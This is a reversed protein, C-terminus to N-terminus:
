SGRAACPTCWARPAGLKRRVGAIVADVVNSVPDAMEDWCHELLATRTVVSDQHVLLQQLVAYEKPEVLAAGRGAAGRAAGPGDGRGRLEPLRPLREAARRTLSRVRLVLERMAFPKALYDDAEGELGHLRDHLTDLATLCLVPASWGARRRYELRTLSDGSPLMRDLVVCDYATVHLMVDAEPWDGAGDVAFGAERLGAAIVARLDDDDEVLLVRLSVGGPRRSPGRGSGPGFRSGSRPSLGTMRFPGRRAGRRGGGGRGGGRDGPGALRAEVAALRSMSTVTRRLAVLRGAVLLPRAQVDPLMGWGMGAVVADM